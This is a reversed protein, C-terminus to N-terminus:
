HIKARVWPEPEHMPVGELAHYLALMAGGSNAPLELMATDNPALDRPLELWRDDIVRGERVIRVIMRYAPTGYSRTRITENGINRVTFMEDTVGLLELQPFLPITGGLWVPEESVSPMVPSGLAALYGNVTLEMRA